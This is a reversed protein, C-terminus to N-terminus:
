EPARLLKETTPLEQSLKFLDRCSYSTWMKEIELLLSEAPNPNKV